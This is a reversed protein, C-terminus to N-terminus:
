SLRLLKFCRHYYPPPPILFVYTVAFMRPFMCSQLSRTKGVLHLENNETALGAIFYIEGNLNLIVFVQLLFLFHTSLLLVLPVIPSVAPPIEAVTALLLWLM